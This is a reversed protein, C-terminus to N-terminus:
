GAGFRLPTSFNIKGQVAETSERADGADVFSGTLDAPAFTAERLDEAFLDAERGLNPAANLAELTGNALKVGTNIDAPGFEGEIAAVVVLRVERVLEAGKGADIRGGVGSTPGAPGIVDASILQKIDLRM